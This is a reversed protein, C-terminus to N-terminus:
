RLKDTLLIVKRSTSCHAPYGFSLDLLNRACLRQLRSVFFQIFPTRLTTPTLMAFVDIEVPRGCLDDIATSRLQAIICVCVRFVFSFGAYSEKKQRSSCLRAAERAHLEILQKM